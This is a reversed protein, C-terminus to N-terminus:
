CPGASGAGPLDGHLHKSWADPTIISLGPAVGRIRRALRLLERDRTLLLDAAAAVALNLFKQDDPDRCRPLAPLAPLADPPAPVQVLSRYRAVIAAAAPPSQRLEPYALVRELEAIGAPDALCTARGDAIAAAIPAARPDAFLLLDLVVNTDIVLRLPAQTM